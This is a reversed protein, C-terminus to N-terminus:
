GGFAHTALSATRLHLATPLMRQTKCAQRFPARKYQSPANMMSNIILEMIEFAHESTSFVVVNSIHGEALTM